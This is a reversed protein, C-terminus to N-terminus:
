QATTAASIQNDVYETVQRVGERVKDNLAHEMEKVATIQEGVGQLDMAVGSQLQQMLRDAHQQIQRIEGQFETWPDRVGIKRELARESDGLQQQVSTTLTDAQARIDRQLTEQLRRGTETVQQIVYTKLEAMQKSGTAQMEAIQKSLKQM